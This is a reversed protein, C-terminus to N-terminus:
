GSFHPVKLEAKSQSQGDSLLPMLLSATSGALAENSHLPFSRLTFVDNVAVDM